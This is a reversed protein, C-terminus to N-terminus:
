AGGEAKARSIPHPGAAVAALLRAAESQLVKFGVDMASKKPNIVIDFGAPWPASLRLAERMRRRIRNRAVAGGLARSVTLGLRSQSQEPRLLFFITMHTAARRKGHRYVDEFDAHRM